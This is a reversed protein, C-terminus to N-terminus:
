TILGILVLVWIGVGGAISPLVWWGGPLAPRDGPRTAPHGAGRQMKHPQSTSAPM